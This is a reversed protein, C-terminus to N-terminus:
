ESAAQEFLLDIFAQTAPWRAEVDARIAARNAKDQKSAKQHALELEYRDRDTLM